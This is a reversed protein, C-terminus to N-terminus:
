GIWNIFEYETFFTIKDNAYKIIEQGQLKIIIVDLKDKLGFIYNFM